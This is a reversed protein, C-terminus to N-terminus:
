NMVLVSHTRKPLMKRNGHGHKAKKKKKKRKKQVLAIFLADLYIFLLRLIFM